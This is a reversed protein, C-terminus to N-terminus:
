LTPSLVGVGPPLPSCEAFLHVHPARCVMFHQLVLLRRPESRLRSLGKGAGRWAGLKMKWKLKSTLYKATNIPYQIKENHGQWETRAAKGLYYFIHSRTECSSLASISRSCVQPAVEFPILPSTLRTGLLSLLM